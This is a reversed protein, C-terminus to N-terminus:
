NKVCSLSFNYRFDILRVKGIFVILQDVLVAIFFLRFGHACTLLIDNLTCYM